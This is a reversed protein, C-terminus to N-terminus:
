PRRSALRYIAYTVGTLFDVIVWFFVIIAVGIGKGASAAERLGAAYHQRCDAQSTFLGQWGGDACQKAAQAAASPGPTTSAVGAIIWAIFLVQIALFVWLFVRRKRRPPAAPPPAYQQRYGTPPGWQPAQPAYGHQPYQQWSEERQPPRGQDLRQRHASPNYEQPQWGTM